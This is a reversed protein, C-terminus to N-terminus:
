FFILLSLRRTTCESAIKYDRSVGFFPHIKEVIYVEVGFNGQIYNICGLLIFLFILIFYFYYNFFFLFCLRCRGQFKECVCSVPFSFPHAVVFWLTYEVSLFPLFSQFRQFM